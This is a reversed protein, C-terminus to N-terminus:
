DLYGMRFNHTQNLEFLFSKRAEAFHPEDKPFAAELAMMIDADSYKLQMMENIEQMEKQYEDSEYYEKMMQEMEAIEEESMEIEEESQNKYREIYEVYEFASIDGFVKEDMEEPTLNNLLQEKMKGM